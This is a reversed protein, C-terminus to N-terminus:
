CVPSGLKFFEGSGANACANSVFRYRFTLVLGVVYTFVLYSACASVRRSSPLMTMWLRSPCSPRLSPAPTAYGCDRTCASLVTPLEAGRRIVLGGVLTQSSAKPPTLASLSPLCAVGLAVASSPRPARLDEEAEPGAPHTQGQPSPTSFPRSRPGRRALGLSACTWHQSFLSSDHM